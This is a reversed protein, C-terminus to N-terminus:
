RDQASMLIADLIIGTTIAVLLYQDNVRVWRYGHPPRRLHRARWDGVYYSQGRYSRDLRDGRSWHPHGMRAHPYAHAAPLPGHQPQGYQQGRQQGHDPPDALAPMALALAFAAAAAPIWTKM